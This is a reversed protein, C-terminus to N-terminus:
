ERGKELIRRLLGALRETKEEEGCAQHYPIQYLLHLLAFYEVEPLHAEGYGSLFNEWHATGEKETYFKALDYARPGCSLDGFDILGAVHGHRVLVNADLLDFHLLVSEGGVCGLGRKLHGGLAGIESLSFLGTQQLAPIHRRATEGVHRSLRHHQGKGHLQMEGFGETEIGHLLRVARGLEGYVDAAQAATMKAQSLMEGPLWTEILYDPGTAVVQPVPLKGELLRCGYAERRIMVENGPRPFKIVYKRESTEVTFVAQEHGHSCDRIDAVEERLRSRFLPIIREKM